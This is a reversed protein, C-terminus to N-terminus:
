VSRSARLYVTVGTILGDAVDFVVAEDTHLRTGGDDVTENLEVVVAGAATLVRVVALEYGSLGEITTRLFAAYADRGRVVDNYPGIREVDPALVAAIDDWAHSALADLYTHVPAAPGLSRDVVARSDHDLPVRPIAAIGAPSMKRATKQLVGRLKPPDLRAELDALQTELFVLCLADELVQVEDDGRGLDRKRVLSQVRTITADDYGAAVLIEALERAHQEHLERRWRLYSARGAPYSSRPVTWRRLHHGRAALLLPETADPALDRVWETVLEAHLVEKPGERGRLRVWQPDQANAADIAAIAPGFRDSVDM